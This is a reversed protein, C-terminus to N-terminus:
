NDHAAVEKREVLRQVTRDLWGAMSNMILLSFCVGTEYSGYYRLLMTALGFGLGYVIRSARAKPVTVPECVLFVASFIMAGSLMEYRLMTLRVSVYEWPLSAPLGGLRPFLWVFIASSALFCLPTTLDIDGRQWLYLACALIVLTFATGMPGAYNGLFLDMGGIIPLGGNKLTSGASEVAAVQSMDLLPLASFPQPYRFVKEPWSVAAVAYGVAVPHFPYCGVGGFVEKGLLDAALVALVLTYLDISAPMLVALLLAFAESSHEHPDYRRGRLWAVLRDILNGTLVAVGALLLPRLGYLCCSMALLPVCCIIIDKYYRLHKEPLAAPLKNEM